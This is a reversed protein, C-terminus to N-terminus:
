REKFPFGKSQRSQYRDRYSHVCIACYHRNGIWGVYHTTGTSDWISRLRVTM